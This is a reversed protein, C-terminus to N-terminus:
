VVAREIQARLAQHDIGRRKAQPGRLVRQLDARLYLYVRGNPHRTNPLLGEDRWTQVTMRSRGAFAMAEAMTLWEREGVPLELVALPHPRWGAPHRDPPIGVVLAPRGDGLRARAAAVRKAVTQQNIGLAAAIEVRTWGAEVIALM